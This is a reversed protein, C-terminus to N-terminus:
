GRGDGCFSCFRLLAMCSHGYNDSAHKLMLSSVGAGQLTLFTTEVHHHVVEHQGVLLLVGGTDDDLNSSQDNEEMCRAQSTVM